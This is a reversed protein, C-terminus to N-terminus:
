VLATERVRSLPKTLSTPLRLQQRAATRAPPQDYGEWRAAPDRRLRRAEVILDLLKRDIKQM